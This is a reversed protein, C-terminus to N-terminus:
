PTRADAASAIAGSSGYHYGAAGHVYHASFGATGVTALNIDGLLIVMSIAIALIGLVTAQVLINSLIGFSFFSPKFIGMVVIALVLLIWVAQAMSFDLVKRAFSPGAPGVSAPSAALDNRTSTSTTSM